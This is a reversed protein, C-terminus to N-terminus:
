RTEKRFSLNKEKDFVLNYFLAEENLLGFKKIENRVEGLLDMRLINKALILFKIKKRKL